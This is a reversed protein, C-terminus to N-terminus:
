LNSITRTELLRHLGAHARKRQSTKRQSLTRIRRSRHCVVRAKAIQKDLTFEKRLLAAPQPLMGPDGFRTDDLNGVVTAPAWSESPESRTQWNTDRPFREITGDARRIKLLAALAPPFHPGPLFPQPASTDCRSISRTRGTMLFGGIERRDFENWHPKSGAFHGNVTVKWDGRAILFLAARSVPQALNFDLHFDSHLKGPSPTSQPAASWIWRIGARDAADEPNNWRIWQASWDSPALLGTEWWATEGAQAMHGKADWVRVTWYYRQRSKLAPGRYAIGRVRIFIAEWQGMHRTQM